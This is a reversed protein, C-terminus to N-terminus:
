CRSSWCLWGRLGECMCGRHSVVSLGNVCVAQVVSVGSIGSKRVEKVWQCRVAKVVLKSVVVSVVSLGNVCVAQVVSVGSIGSETV